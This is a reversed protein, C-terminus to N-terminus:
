SCPYAVFKTQVGVDVKEWRKMELDHKLARLKNETQQQREREREMAQQHEAKVDAMLQRFEKRLSATTGNEDGIRKVQEDALMAQLMHVENAMEQMKTEFAKRELHFDTINRTLREYEKLISGLEAELSATQLIFASERATYARQAEQFAINLAETESSSAKKEQLGLLRNQLDALEMEKATAKSRWTSCAEEQKMLEQQLKETEERHTAMSEIAEDLSCNMVKRCQAEQEKKRTTEQTITLQLNTIQEQWKESSDKQEQQKEALEQQLQSIQQQLHVHRKELEERHSQELSLQLELQAITHDQQSQYEESKNTNFAETEQKQALELQLKSVQDELTLTLAVKGELEERRRQEQALQERIECLKTQDDAIQQEYDVFQKQIAALTQNIALSQRYDDDPAISTVSTRVSKSFISDDTSLVSSNDDNISETKLTHISKKRHKVHKTAIAELRIFLQDRSDRRDHFASNPPSHALSGALRQMSNWHNESTQSIRFFLEDVLKEIRHTSAHLDPLPEKELKLLALAARQTGVELEIRTRLADITTDRRDFSSKQVINSTDEKASATNDSIKPTQRPKVGTKKEATPVNPKTKPLDTKLSAEESPKLRSDLYPPIEPGQRRKPIVTKLNSKPTQSIRRVPTPLKPQQKLGERPMATENNRLSKPEPLRHNADLATPKRLKSEASKKIPLLKKADSADEKHRNAFFPNNKLKNGVSVSTRSFTSQPKVRSSSM